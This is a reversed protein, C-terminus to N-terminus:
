EVVQPPTNEKSLPQLPTSPRRSPSKWKGNSPVHRMISTFVKVFTWFEIIRMLPFLVGFVLYRYRKLYIVAIVTLIYDYLCVSIILIPLSKAIDPNFPIQSASLFVFIAILIIYGCLILNTMLQDFISFIVAGGFANRTLKHKAVTQWFGLSWRYTQRIYDKLNDPDQTYALAKKPHFAIKGLKKTHVDFTMNYDEIILGPAAINISKLASSRYMSAFGPVILVANVNQAAQGYKILIQSIVYVRQRYALLFKGLWGGPTDDSFTQASGAVAVVEASNFLPLGTKFYTNSLHTDADLILIVKYRDTLNFHKLGAVLAGAKGRNKELDFVHVGASLAIEATQDRSADSVLYIQEKRLRKKLQTLTDGIILSENHAAILVAVDKKHVVAATDHLTAKRASPRHAWIVRVLGFFSWFLTGIGALIVLAIFYTTFNM